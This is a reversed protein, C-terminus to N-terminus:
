RNGVYVPYYTMRSTREYMWFADWDDIMMRRSLNNIADIRRQREIDNEVVGNGGTARLLYGETKAEESTQHCGIICAAIALALLLCLKKM